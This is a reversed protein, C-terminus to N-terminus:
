HGWAEILSGGINSIILEELFSTSIEIRKPSLGKTFKSNGLVRFLRLTQVQLVIM